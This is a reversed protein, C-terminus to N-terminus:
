HAQLYVSKRVGSFSSPAAAAAAAVAVAVAVVVVAPPTRAAAPAASAPAAPLVAGSSLWVRQPIAASQGLYLAIRKEVM